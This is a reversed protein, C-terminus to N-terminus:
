KWISNLKDIQVTQIPLHTPSSIQLRNLLSKPFFIDTMITVGDDAFMEISAADIIFTINMKNDNSLRSASHKTAFNKYFDSKGAATRDIFYQNNKTDYGAVLREGDANSFTFSVDDLKNASVTVRYATAIAKTKALINGDAKVNSLTALPTAITNLEKVPMATVYLKNNVEKLSLERPVTNASRWTATPVKTAYLWNSMWGLLIRRNGTNSWTVGAYNDTGYDLWKTTNSDDPTFTKGDFNGTFYQTGSGGNPGGPNINAIVVWVEKGNHQLPFIDPCEWVGGHAGLSNGFDSEHTWSKLDPSSYFSVHDKVALIVVWKKEKEFWMVKPDRFDRSGSENPLVPNNSYKTFTKGGDLSYAICQREFDNKGEREAKPNHSTYMAVLPTKGNSGFGSTNDKDVVASGSFIYGLSDPYLAIPQQQWHMLDTSTAHGWHMPGWVTSDPYYQFFLHYVGNDYVMGNPDNMWHAAPSFHVQPRYLEHYLQSQAFLSIQAFVFGALLLLKNTKTQLSQYQKM